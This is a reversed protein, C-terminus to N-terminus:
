KLGVWLFSSSEIGYFDSVLSPSNPMMLIFSMGTVSETYVCWEVVPNVVLVWVMSLSVAIIDCIQLNHESTFGILRILNEV